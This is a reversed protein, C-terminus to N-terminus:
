RSRAPWSTAPPPTPASRPRSGPTPTPTPRSCRPSARGDARQADLLGGAGGADVRRAAGRRRSGPTMAQRPRAAPTGAPRGAAMRTGGPGGGPGGGGASRRAPRRSRGPTPPPRRDPRRVGGPRGAVRGGRSRGRRRALRRPLWACRRRPCRRRAPRRGPRGLAALAPLRPQPRAAPVGHGRHARRDDGGGRRRRLPAGTSALGALAGIGVLAAIAPALAVTYYAHFIGAMFSFVLGTVLLWGGWLVLAPASRTPARGARPHVLLRRRAAAAGRAAAVRDPRRDRRRVAPDIGTEGWMSGGGRRRAGGGVSGTEDGTLRGFGNYGLTLELISNDQSGGIYPRSAAPWLSVIAIWWGAPSSCRASPSSCTVSGSSSAATARRDPLGARVGAAGPVGPADQDPVGARGPRRRAGALAGPAARTSEVARLTAYAAGVLLLVLLADPNNFRFM